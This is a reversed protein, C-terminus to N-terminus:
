EQLAKEVSYEEEMPRETIPSFENVKSNRLSEMYRKKNIVITREDEYCILDNANDEDEDEIRIEQCFHERGLHVM